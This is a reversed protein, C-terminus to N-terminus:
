YISPISVRSCNEANDVYNHVFGHYWQVIHLCSNFSFYDNRARADAHVHVTVHTCQAHVITSLIESDGHPVINDHMICSHQPNFHCLYM